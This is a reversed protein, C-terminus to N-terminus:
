SPFFLLGFAFIPPFSVIKSPLCGKSFPMTQRSSLTFNFKIHGDQLGCEIGVGITLHHVTTLSDCNYSSVLELPSPIKCYCRYSDPLGSFSGQKLNLTHIQSLSRIQLQYM